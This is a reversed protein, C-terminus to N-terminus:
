WDNTLTSPIAPDPVDLRDAGIDELPEEMTSSEAKGKAKEPVDMAQSAYNHLREGVLYVEDRVTDRWVAVEQKIYWVGVLMLVIMMVQPYAFRYSNMIDDHNDIGYISIVLRAYGLPVLLLVLCALALPLVVARTALRVDPKWFGKRGIMRIATALRTHPCPTNMAVRLLLRMFLLGLTWTQLLFITPKPPASSPVTGGVPQDDSAITADIKVHGHKVLYTLLPIHIYLETILSLAFPFVLAFMMALYGLGALHKLAEIAQPLMRTPNPLLGKTRQVFWQWGKKTNAVCYALAGIAHVGITLAYLDNVEGTTGSLIALIRRGALLPGLTSAVGTGSAFLWLLVVFTAIRAKFQPPLWIKTFNENKRGHLGTKHDPQGDVRKNDETVELFTKQNKPIRCSDSAPARVYVGETESSSDERVTKIWPIVGRYNRVQKEDDREEGFLFHSLRLGHAVGRFWWEYVGAIRESPKLKRVIFPLMFNFFVVDVPFALRPEPTIWRIPLINTTYSISWVVGGLCMIVLGGYVLASFAIKGLQTPVPRELVDRVPHFTPDDPDRIFYLVGRRFIKRCMSVFLAFHFMYCTGAFWHLFLGTFPAKLIFAARTLISAGEFLPLLAVDLLMGCYLPFILMEIGIIIVVKMVGGAERLRDAIPGEVKESKKLGLVLRAIKMFLFGGLAFFAYGLAIAIVRDQTTWEILAVDTASSIDLTLPKLQPNLLTKGGNVMRYPMQRLYTSSQAFSNRLLTPTQQLRAVSWPSTFISSYVTSILEVCYESNSRMSQKFTILARHSQMSFTPLDPSFITMTDTLTKELRGGSQHTVNTALEAFTETDLLNSYAPAFSQTATKVAQAIVNFAMGLLGLVFFCIDAFLDVMHMALYVPAKVVVAVPNALLILAIKGWIYPIWVAASLTLSILLLSFVVNQLMGVLPGEMGVLELVGELEEADDLANPDNLDFGLPVDVPPLPPEAADARAIDVNHNRVHVLPANAARAALVHDDGPLDQHLDPDPVGDVYWFWAALKDMLTPVRLDQPEAEEVQTSPFDPPGSDIEPTSEPLALDDERGDDDRNASPDREIYSVDDRFRVRSENTTVLELSPEVDNLIDGNHDTTTSTSLPVRVQPGIGSELLANGGQQDLSEQLTRQAEIADGIMGRLLPPPIDVESHHTGDDQAVSEAHRTSSTEHWTQARDRMQPRGIHSSDAAGINDETMARPPMFVQARQPEEVQEPAQMAADVNRAALRHPGARRRARRPRRDDVGPRGEAANDADPNNLMPQQNIVWERILFVLIFTAVLGVCILLGEVVDIAFDNAVTSSTLGKLFPTEGLFSPQRPPRVARSRSRDPSDVPSSMQVPPISFLIRFITAPWSNGALFRLFAVLANSAPSPSEDRAGAGIEPMGSLSSTANAVARAENELRIRRQQHALWSGDAIWFLGRWTQRICWPLAVLWVMAVLIYRAWRIITTITHILVQRAFLPWPLVSPMSPAYLKTFRFPCKCLECHKKKSHSLWEM